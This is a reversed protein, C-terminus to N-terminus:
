GQIPKVPSSVKSKSNNQNSKTRGMSYLEETVERLLSDFTWLSDDEILMNPPVLTSLLISLDIGDKNSHLYSKAEHQLTSLAPIKRSLNRPAHAVRQDADGGGDEDLDPIIIEAVDENFHKDKNQAVIAPSEPEPEFKQKQEQTVGGMWGGDGSTTDDDNTVRKRRPKNQSSESPQSQQSQQQSSSKSTIEDDENMNSDDKRMRRPRRPRTDGKDDDQGGKDGKDERNSM